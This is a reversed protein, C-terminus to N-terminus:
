EFSSEIKLAKPCIEIGNQAKKPLRVIASARFRSLHPFPIPPPLALLANVDQAPNGPLNKM